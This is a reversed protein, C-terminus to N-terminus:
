HSRWRKSKCLVSGISYHSNFLGNIICCIFYGRESKFFSLASKQILKKNREDWDKRLEFNDAAFTATMLEFVTLSVGGTNVNEFVQCVAEKPTDKSLTIVPVKYSQTPLLIEAIFKAYKTLIAENYNYYRQYDNMWMTCAISDFVINLPFMHNECEKDRTSLDLEIDRGFKSRIIKDELVSIIADVRDTTSKLCREIDLYYFRKIEKNKDTKTM